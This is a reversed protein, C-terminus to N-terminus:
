QPDNFSEVYPDYFYELHLNDLDSTSESILKDKIQTLDRWEKRKLDYVKFGTADYRGLKDSPCKNMQPGFVLYDSYSGVFSIHLALIGVVKFNDCEVFASKALDVYWLSLETYNSGLVFVRDNTTILKMETYLRCLIKDPFDIDIDIRGEHNHDTLTYSFSTLHWNARPGVSANLIFVRDFTACCSGRLLVWRGYELRQFIDDFQVSRKTISDYFMLVIGRDTTVLVNVFRFDRDNEHVAIMNFQMSVTKLTNTNSSGDHFCLAVDSPIEHVDNNTLNLVLVKGISKKSQEVEELRRRAPELAECSICMFCHTTAEIDIDWELLKSMFPRLCDANFIRSPRRLNAFGGRQTYNRLDSPVPGVAQRAHWLVVFKELPLEKSLVNFEPSSLWTNFHKNVTRFRTQAPIPLFAVIHELLNISLNKWVDPDLM